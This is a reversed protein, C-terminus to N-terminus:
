KNGLFKIVVKSVEARTIFDNPRFKLKSDIIQGSIIGLEKAKIVYKIMWEGDLPIDVFDNTLTSTLDMNSTKLLISIAEARTIFDNPRFKLKSDIIQGSVIGLEKAKMIYKIMWEGDSPIDVFDNTGTSTLDIELAKMVISLFEARTINNDPKFTKDEYGKVIGKNYLEKIYGNAFSEKIDSFIDMDQSTTDELTISIEGDSVNNNDNSNTKGTGTSEVSKKGCIGDYYSSSFDGNPCSDKIISSGGGGGGGSSPASKTTVNFSSSVGGITLTTTNLTSYSSSSTLRVTVTQGNAVTGASSTYSGTGIKYEGGVISIASTTNIGSVTITNSEYVTSLEKGTVATFTFADPTSDLTPAFFSLHDTKFSCMLSSDLTCTSDPVNLVWSTGNQSRYLKFITGSSYGAVKFSVNFYGGQAILGAGQSGTKITQIVTIGEGVESGTGAEDSDSDVLEPPLLIGNWEGSDVGVNVGSLTLAGEIYDSDGADGQIILNLQSMEHTQGSSISGTFGLSVPGTETFTGTGTIVVPTSFSGLEGNTNLLNDTLLLNYNYTTDSSLGTIIATGVNGVYNVLFNSSYGVGDNINLSTIGTSFHPESYKFTFIAGTETINSVQTYLIEPPTSDKTIVVINSLGSYNGYDDYSKVNISNVGENLSVNESFSGSPGIIGTGILIGSNYIEVYEEGDGTGDIDMGGLSTLTDTTTIIPTNPAVTDVVNVVRTAIGTVGLSNTFIYDIYQTSVDYKDISGSITIVLGTGDTQDSYNAGLETYNVTRELSLPNAGNITIIPVSKNINSVTAIVSGQNGSADEFEFTFIGNETFLHTFAGSNNTIIIPESAGTLTAIVDGSTLTSINYEISATPAVTDRVVVTRSGTGIVGLTNTFSYVMNYNGLTNGDVIGSINSVIGTGDTEDSYTAGSEIYTSGLEVYQPNDGILMIAPISKNINSVTALVSGTNGALDQIIFTFDGNNTFIYSDMGGNNIITVLESAGTLTAIVDSATLVSPNYVLSATPLVTDITVDSADTTSIVTLGANGDLDLYDISFIVTGSDGSEITNSTAIWINGSGVVSQASEGNITVTVGTLAESGVISLMVKDGQKALATSLSNNSSIEVDSLIPNLNFSTFHETDFSITCDIGSSCDADFNSMLDTTDIVVGSNNTVTFYDSNITMGSYALPLGYMEINAPYSAFEEGDLKVYGDDMELYNQLGSLFSITTPSTLDLSGSFTIKGLGDIKFYLGSFSNVNAYNVTDLNTDIGQSILYSNVQNSYIDVYDVPGVYLSVTDIDTTTTSDYTGNLSLTYYGYNTFELPNLYIKGTTGTAVLPGMAVMGTGSTLSYTAGIELNSLTISGTSYVFSDSLTDIQGPVTYVPSSTRLKVENDSGDNKIYHVYVEGNGMSLTPTSSPANSDVVAFGAFSPGTKEIYKLINSTDVYAIGVTDGDIAMSPTTIGSGVVSTNWGTSLEALYYSGDKWKHLVYPIGSSNLVLANNPLNSLASSSVSSGLSIGGSKNSKYVFNYQKDSGGTWTHYYYYYAVIHYYGNSDIKIHPTYYQSYTGDGSSYYNDGDFIVSSSFNNIGDGVALLINNRDLSNSPNTWRVVINVIGDLSIDIDPEYSKGANVAIPDGWGGYMNNQYYVTTGSQYAVHSTGDPGVAIAPTNGVGVLQEQGIGKKFYVKLDRQYVAYTEGNYFDSDVASDATSNDTITYTDTFIDLELANRKTDILTIADSIQTSTVNLDSELLIAADIAGVYDSWSASTYDTENLMYTTRSYGDQYEMNIAIFLASTDVIQTSYTFTSGDSNGECTISVGNETCVISGTSMTPQLAEVIEQVTTGSSVKYNSNYGDVSARYIGMDTVPEVISYEVVQPVGLVNQTDTSIIFSNGPQSSIVEFYTSHDIAFVNLTGSQSNILDTLGATVSSITSGTAVFSVDTGDINVIFTDGIEINSPTVKNIQPEPQKNYANVLLTYGVGATVAQLTINTSNDTAVVIGSQPSTNIADTLASTVYEIFEGTSTYQLQTGNIDVVFIDGNEPNKPEIFNLQKQANVGGTFTITDPSIVTTPNGKVVADFDSSGNILTTLDLSTLGIGLTDGDLDCAIQYSPFAGVLSVIDICDTNNDDIIDIQIMNGATGLMKSTIYSGDLSTSGTAYSGVQNSMSELNTFDQNDSVGTASAEQTIEFNLTQNDIGASVSDQIKNVYFGPAIAFVLNTFPYLNSFLLMFVVTISTAKKLKRLYITEM